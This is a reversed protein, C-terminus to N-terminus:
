PAGQSSMGLQAGFLPNYLGCRSALEEHSGQEAITGDKLVVIREAKRITSLRHAIIFTTRGAMLREMAELILAETKADLASTPEDLILIPADKLLARAIALRQRQGGSLTAGREGIITDYGEPLQHIFEEANAAVAAAVIQERSAEPRGYAINDAVSLPLLFPEQLVLSVQQRLSRLQIDRADVGDILVRGEWPDFFRPVLSALTTKGAGTAGVLAVTEGARVLLDIGKLVPRDPEYGFTVGEFTVAIGPGGTRRVFPRASSRETVEDKAEFMQTVRRAQGESNAFAASLNALTELPQYVAALYALFVLLSGLSLSTAHVHLGGLVILAATGLATVTGIVLAYNLHTRTLRLYARIADNSGGRFRQEEDPERGFAQVMPLSTIAQEAVAMLAGEAQYQEYSRESMRPTMWRMLLPMPLAALFAVSTLLPDIQWMIWAMVLLTVASTLGPLVVGIVLQRIFDTDNMVRHVLDGAKNAGHYRLSVSQLHAFLDGALDLKIRTAAGAQAYGKAMLVAQRGAFLLLTVLALWGLLTSAQTAGPLLALWSVPEPLPNGPLVNDVILKLPWPTLVNFGVDIVMLGLIAVFPGWRRRAYHVSLSLWAKM